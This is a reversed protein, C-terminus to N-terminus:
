SSNGVTCPLECIGDIGGLSHSYVIAYNSALARYGGKDSRNVIISQNISQNIWENTRENM